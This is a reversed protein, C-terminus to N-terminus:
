RHVSARICWLLARVGIGALLFFHLALFNTLFIVLTSEIFSVNEYVTLCEVEHFFIPSLRELAPHYGYLSCFIYLLVYLLMAAVSAVVWERLRL